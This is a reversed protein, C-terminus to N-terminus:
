NMGLERRLTDLMQLTLLNRLTAGYQKEEGNLMIGNDTIDGRIGRMTMHFGDEESVGGNPLTLVATELDILPIRQDAAISRLAENYAAANEHFNPAHPFTTLIPIVGQSTTLDILQQIQNSYVDLGMDSSRVENGGFLIFAFAPKMVRIECELPKEGLQCIAKGEDPVRFSDLVSASNFASESALSDRTFADHSFYDISAQLDTYSGLNYEGTGFGIMFAQQETTSDGVKIFVHPDNGMEQGKQFIERVRNTVIVGSEDATPLPQVDEPSLSPIELTASASMNSSSTVMLIPGPTRTLAQAVIQPANTPIVLPSDPTNLQAVVLPTQTMFVQQPSTPACAAITILPLLLILRYPTQFIREPM